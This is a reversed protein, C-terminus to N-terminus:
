LLVNDILRINGTKVAICAVAQTCQDFNTITQLTESNCIEFYELSLLNETEIMSRVDTKLKEVSNTKRNDRAYFLSKSLMVASQRQEKTLLANRSSMALGDAERVTQCPIIETKINKQRVLEKIIALQQYDKMGFYARNPKVIDFLLKVVVAVGNFHGPRHAGEMVRELSGFYYKETIEEPYMEEVSPIFVYNCQAEELKKLDDELTRPYHKLDNKDNFQIPNVFISSVTIENESVSQKILSIHGQHLAGMTPVFGIKKGLRIEEDLASILEKKSEFIFM